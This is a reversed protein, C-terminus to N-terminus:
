EWLSGSSGVEKPPTFTGCVGFHQRHGAFNGMFFWIDRKLGFLDTMWKDRMTAIPDDYRHRYARWTQGVEWAIFKSNCEEGEGDRWRLRFDFPLKELPKPGEFLGEQKLIELERPTWDPSDPEAVFELVESVRVPALTRGSERLVRMSEVATPVVWDRRARWTKVREVVSISSTDPRRSEPRGDPNAGLRVKVVDFTKYQKEEELMRLSVPYLRRWQGKDNIGGTCVTEHYKTSLNPYTRVTILIRETSM